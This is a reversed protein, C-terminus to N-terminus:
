RRTIRLQRGSGRARSVNVALAARVLANLAEENIM